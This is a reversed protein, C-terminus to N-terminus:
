QCSFCDNYTFMVQQKTDHRISCNPPSILHFYHSQLVPCSPFPHPTHLLNICTIWIRHRYFILIRWNILIICFLLFTKIVKWEATCVASKKCDENEFLFFLLCIQSSSCSSQIIYINKINCTISNWFTEDCYLKKFCIYSNKSWVVCSHWKMQM